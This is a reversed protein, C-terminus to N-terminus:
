ETGEWIVIIDGEGSGYIGDKRELYICEIDSEYVPSLLNFTAYVRDIGDLNHVLWSLGSTSKNVTSVDDKFKIRIEYAMNLIDDKHEKIYAKYEDSGHEMGEPFYFGKLYETAPFKYGGLEVTQGIKDIISLEIKVPTIRLSELTLTADGIEFTKMPTYAASYIENEMEDLKFSVTLEDAYEIYRINGTYEGSEDVEDFASFLRTLTLRYEGAESLPLSLIIKVTDAPEKGLFHLVKGALLGKEGMHDEFITEYKEHIRYKILRELKLTDYLLATGKFPTTGSALTLYLYGTDGDRVAKEVTLTIQDKSVTQDIFVANQDILEEERTFVRKIAEGM